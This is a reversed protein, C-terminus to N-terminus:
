AQLVQSRPGLLLYYRQTIVQLVNSVTHVRHLAAPVYGLQQTQIAVDSHCQHLLVVDVLGDLLYFPLLAPNQPSLLLLKLALIVRTQM